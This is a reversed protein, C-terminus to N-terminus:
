PAAGDFGDGFISDDVFFYAAGQWTHGDITPHPTGILATNGDLALAAGFFDDTTGDSAIFKHSQVWGGATATFLYVTGRSTNGDITAIDAGILVRSGSISIANGFSDGSAGDDPVLKQVETWSGGSETFVYAAGIGDNSTAGVILTTGDFALGMGFSDNTAGDSATLRQTQTWTGGSETYVYVAGAGNNGDVPAIPSGVFATGDKVGVTMGFNDYDTGDDAILKQQQTWNAGSGTFVYAAGQPVGEVFAGNAGIVVTDGDLAISAGFNEFLGGDDAVLKATQEWGSDNTFVYAAGQAANGNVTASFAGVVLTNGELETRYGFQEGGAGDDASIKQAETWIGGTDKFVYAAGKFSADGDAGIVATDGEIAVASGFYSNTTGDSATVKQEDLWALADGIFPNASHASAVSSLFALAFAFSRIAPITTKL